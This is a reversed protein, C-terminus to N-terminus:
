YTRYGTLPFISLGNKSTWQPWDHLLPVLMHSYVRCITIEIWVRPSKMNKNKREPTSAFRPTSNAWEVCLTELIWYIRFTASHRLGLTGRGQEMCFVAHLQFFSKTRILIYKTNRKSNLEFCITLARIIKQYSIQTTILYFHNM